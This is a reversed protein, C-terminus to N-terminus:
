LYTNGCTGAAESVTRFRIHSGEGSRRTRNKFAKIQLEM